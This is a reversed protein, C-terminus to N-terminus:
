QKKPKQEKIISELEKVTQNIKNNILKYDFDDAQKLEILAENLRKKIEEPDDTGRSRLQNELASESKPMLFVFLGKPYRDKLKKAGQVDIGVIVYGSDTTGELDKKLRGYYRGYVKSWEAFDDREILKLFDEESVFYYDIGNIERSRPSRTTLSVSYKFEPNRKLFRKIITTKGVGSPGTIVVLM